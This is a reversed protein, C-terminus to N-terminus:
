RRLLSIASTDATKKKQMVMCMVRLSGKVQKKFVRQVSENVKATVVEYKSM